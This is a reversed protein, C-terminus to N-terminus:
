RAEQTAAVRAVIAEEFDDPQFGFPGPGSRYAVLGAEDVLYLRDPHASYSDGVENTMDDILTPISIDMGLQCAHAAEVREEFTQPQAILVEELVNSLSQWGDTPHAERIYVVFFAVRDRYREYIEELRV